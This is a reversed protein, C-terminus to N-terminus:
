AMAEWRAEVKAQIAEATALFAIASLDTSLDAPLCVMIGGASFKHRPWGEAM